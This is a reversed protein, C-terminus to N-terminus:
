ISGRKVDKLYLIEKVSFEERVCKIIYRDSNLGEFRANILYNCICRCLNRATDRVAIEITDMLIKSSLSYRNSDPCCNGSICFQLNLEKRFTYTFCSDTSVSKNLKHNQCGAIQELLVNNDSTLSDDNCSYGILIIFFSLVFVFYEIYNKRNM